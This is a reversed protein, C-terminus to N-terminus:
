KVRADFAAVAARMAEIDKEYFNVSLPGDNLTLSLAIPDETVNVDGGGSARLKELANQRALRYYVKEGLPKALKALENYGFVLAVLSHTRARKLDDPDIGPALTDIEPAPLQSRLQTIEAELAELKPRLTSHELTKLEQDHERCKLELADRGEDADALLWNVLEVLGAKSRRAGVLRMAVGYRDHAEPTGARTPHAAKIAADEPLPGDDEPWTSWTEYADCILHVSEGEAGDNRFSARLLAVAGALIAPPPLSRESM